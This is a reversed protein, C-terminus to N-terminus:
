ESKRERARATEMRKIRKELDDFADADFTGLGITRKEVAAVRGELDAIKADQAVDRAHCPPPQAGTLGAQKEALDLRRLELEHRQAARESYFKWGQRGGLVAVVALVIMVTPTWPSDGLIGAVGLAQSIDASDQAVAPTMAPVVSPAIAVPPASPPIAEGPALLTPDHFADVDPPM